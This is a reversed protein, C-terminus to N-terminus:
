DMEAREASISSLETLQALTQAKIKTWRLIVSRQKLEFGTWTRLESWELHGNRVMERFIAAKRSFETPFTLQTLTKDTWKLESVRFGLEIWNMETWDLEFGLKWHWELGTSGFVMEQVMKAFKILKLVKQVPVLTLRPRVDLIRWEPNANRMANWTMEWWKMDNRMMEYCKMVNWKMKSTWFELKIFKLGSQTKFTKLFWNWVQTELISM